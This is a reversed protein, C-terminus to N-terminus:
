WLVTCVRVEYVKHFQHLSEVVCISVKCTTFVEAIEEESSEPSLGMIMGRCHCVCLMCCVGFECNSPSVVAMVSGALIAGLATCHWQSCSNGIICVRAFRFIGHQVPTACVCWWWLGMRKGVGGM